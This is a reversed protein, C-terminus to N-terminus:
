KDTSKNELSPRAFAVHGPLKTSESREPYDVRNWWGGGLAQFLAATDAFRNYRAQALASLAQHYAQQANLLALYNVFGHELQKTVIDLTKKAAQESEVAAKLADADSQLAYLTDAVNQFATLVTSKYMAGAQEFAADAARKRHLLTGGAFITQTVSGTISWFINDSALMEGFTTAAGGRVGTISFQPVMAAVAVGIQASASHLQAEAARVDPRREVLRSPLSLPLERPLRLSSLEFTQAMQRNPLEGVLNTLLDRNQELQKRLPALAARAQALAAEQAAVDLGSVFGLEFQRHLLHTAKTLLEVIQTAAAIQARLSAEQMVVAVVNSSLTVYTAELQFRQAEAQAELSEVTRRNLGFVDPVYSVSVQATHLTFITEPSNLPSSLSAATRQRIPSYSAQVTPYFFGRQAAVLEQAQRL